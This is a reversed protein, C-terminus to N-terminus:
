QKLRGKTVSSAAVFGMRVAGDMYGGHVPSIETGAFILKGNMAPTQFVPNGYQPSMYISKISECSTDRDKTWDKEEYYVYDRIGEGLYQALYDLIRTKRQEPSRDRLAENVFGMLAFYEQKVDTHDYLEVVPGVQGIMTGSLGKERWFPTKFRMGIKIANSMWTHTSEMASTLETALPPEYTIRTAIRPPITTIVQQAHYDGRNTKVIIGDTREEIGTVTVNLNICEQVPAALTEILRMSGGAIRSAAPSNPDTEFFHAPAMTSYVLVSKGARSQPFQKVGLEKMLTDLAEHHDHFWTAGFDIHEVTHIRGGIRDRSELIVFDTDGAQALAYAASLGSLGAGIIITHPHPISM